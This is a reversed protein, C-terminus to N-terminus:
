EVVEVVLTDVVRAEVVVRTAGAVVEVSHPMM